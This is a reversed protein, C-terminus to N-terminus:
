GSLNTFKLLCLRCAAACNGVMFGRNNECEGVSAWFACLEHHNQCRGRVYDYEPRSIVEEEFYNHMHTMVDMIKKMEEDNGSITQEVGLEVDSSSTTPITKIVEDSTGFGNNKEIVLQRPSFNTATRSARPTSTCVYNHSSDLSICKPGSTYLDIYKQQTTTEEKAMIGDRPTNTTPERADNSQLLTLFILAATIAQRNNMTSPLFTMM